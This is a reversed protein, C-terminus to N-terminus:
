YSGSIKTLKFNALYRSSPVHPGRCLDVFDGLYYISIPFNAPLSNIIELKYKNNAFLSLAEEKSIEKRIFKVDEKVISNMENSIKELDNESINIGNFDIDYYFGNEVAPGITLLANKYLRQVAFALLHASSHRLVELGDIDSALIVKIKEENVDDPILSSLDYQMDNIELAVANKVGIKKILDFGNM